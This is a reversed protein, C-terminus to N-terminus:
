RRSFDNCLTGTGDDNINWNVSTGLGTGYVKKNRYQLALSQEEEDLLGFDTLASYEKFRFNNKRDFNYSHASFHM